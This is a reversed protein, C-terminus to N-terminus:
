DKGPDTERITFFCTKPVLELTPIKRCTSLDLGILPVRPFPIGCGQRQRGALLQGEKGGSALFNPQPICSSCASPQSMRKECRESSRSFSGIGLALWCQNGTAM